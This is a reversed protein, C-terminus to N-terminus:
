KFKGAIQVRKHVGCVVGVRPGGWMSELYHEGEKECKCDTRLSALCVNQNLQEVNLQEM